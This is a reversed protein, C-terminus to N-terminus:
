GAGLMCRNGADICRNVIRVVLTRQVSAGTRKADIHFGMNRRAYGVIVAKWKCCAADDEIRRM